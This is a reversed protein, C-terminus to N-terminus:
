ASEGGAYLASKDSTFTAARPRAGADPYPPPLFRAPEAATWRLRPVGEAARTMPLGSALVHHVIENM